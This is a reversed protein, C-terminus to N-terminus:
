ITKKNNCIDLLMRASLADTMHALTWTRPSFRKPDFTGSLLVDLEGLEKWTTGTEKSLYPAASAEVGRIYPHNMEPNWVFTPVDMAWAEALALGQSETMSLFVAVLSESLASKFNSKNYHGYRIRHVVYGKSAIIREVELCFSRPTTDKWYVLADKSKAAHAPQWYQEDVGAYWIAIKGVLAPDLKEYVKKVWESPVLITDIEKASLAQNYKSPLDLMNPGALLKKIKGTRKWEIAQKLAKMDTLVVVTDTIARESIPNYVFDAGTKKLGALLSRTVATHGGLRITDLDIIGGKIVYKAFRLINRLRAILAAAASVQRTLITITM